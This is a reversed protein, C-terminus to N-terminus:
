GTRQYNNNQKDKEQSLYEASDEFHIIKGKENNKDKWNDDFSGSSASSDMIEPQNLQLEDSDDFSFSIKHGFIRQLKALTKLNILKDGTFLQTLYSKSVKLKQALETKNLPINKMITEIQYMIDLHLMEAEFDLREKDNTFAITEMFIEQVPRKSSMNM